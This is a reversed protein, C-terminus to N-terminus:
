KDVGRCMGNFLAEGITDPVVSQWGPRYVTSLVTGNSAYTTASVINLNRSSCNLEMEEVSSSSVQGETKSTKLWCKVAAANSVDVTRIDLYYERSTSRVILRWREVADM